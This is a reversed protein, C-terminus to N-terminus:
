CGGAERCADRLSNSGPRQAEEARTRGHNFRPAVPQGRLSQGNQRADWERAMDNWDSRVQARETPTTAERPLADLFTRDPSALGPPGKIGDQALAPGAAIALMVAAGALLTRFM